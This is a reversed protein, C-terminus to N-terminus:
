HFSFETKLKVFVEDSKVDPNQCLLEFGDVTKPIDPFEIKPGQRDSGQWLWNLDSFLFHSLKTPIKEGIFAQACSWWLDLYDRSGYVAKEPDFQFARNALSM